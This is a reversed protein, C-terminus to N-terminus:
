NVNEWARSMRAKKHSLVLQGNADETKEVYVEVNDGVKLDPNHRFEPAPIVGESKYGINVVVERATLAVVHVM